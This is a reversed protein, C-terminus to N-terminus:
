VDKYYLRGTWLVRVGTASSQNPVTTLPVTLDYSGRNGTAATILYYLRYNSASDSGTQDSIIMPEINKLDYYFNLEAHLGVASTSGEPPLEVTMTKLVTYAGGYDHDRFCSNDLFQADAHAVGDISLIAANYDIVQTMAVTTAPDPSKVKVLRVVLTNGFFGSSDSQNWFQFKTYIKTPKIRAGIRQNEESGQAPLDHAQTTYHGSQVATVSTTYIQAVYGVSAPVSELVKEEAAGM